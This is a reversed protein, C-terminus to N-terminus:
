WGTDGGEDDGDEDDGGEDDPMDADQCVAACDDQTGCKGFNCASYNVIGSECNCHIIDCDGPSECEAQGGDDGGDDNGGDDNGGDDNGGDDNGGDDN